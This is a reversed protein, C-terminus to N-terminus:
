DFQAGLCEDRDDVAIRASKDRDVRVGVVKGPMRPRVDIDEDDRPVRFAVPDAPRLHVVDLLPRAFAAKAFDHEVYKGVVVAGKCEIFAAAKPRVM